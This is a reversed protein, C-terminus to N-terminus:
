GDAAETGNAKSGRAPPPADAYVPAVGAVAIIVAAACWSAAVLVTRWPRVMEVYVAALWASALTATALVLVAPLPRLGLAVLRHSLHDRAGVIIPRRNAARQITITAADVLPLGCLLLCVMAPNAIVEYDRGVALALTGVLLGLALSGADGLFTKARKSLNWPLFGLCAGAGALGIIRAAQDSALLAAVSLIAAATLACLGDMNDAFNVANMVVVLFVGAAVADIAPVQTISPILVNPLALLALSAAIAQGGAKAHAPLDRFDDVLGLVLAAGFAPLVRLYVTSQEALMLFPVVLAGAVAIGGLLPTPAPHDKRGGPQDLIRERLALWRCVPTFGLAAVVALVGAKAEPCVM